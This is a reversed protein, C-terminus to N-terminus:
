AVVKMNEKDKGNQNENVNTDNSEDKPSYATLKVLAQIM